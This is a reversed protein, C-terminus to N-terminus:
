YERFEPAAGPAPRNQIPAPIPAAVGEKDRAKAERFEEAAAREPGGWPRAPETHPFPQQNPIHALISAEVGEKIRARFARGLSASTRNRSSPNGGCRRRYCAGEIRPILEPIRFVLDLSLDLNQNQKPTLDADLHPTLNLGM